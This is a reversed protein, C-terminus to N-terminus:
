LAGSTADEACSLLCTVHRGQLRFHLDVLLRSAFLYHLEEGIWGRHLRVLLLGLVISVRCLRLGSSSKFYLFRLNGPHLFRLVDSPPDFLGSISLRLLNSSSPGHFRRPTRGNFSTSTWAEGAM